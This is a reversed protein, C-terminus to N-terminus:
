GIHPPIRVLTQEAKSKKWECVQRLRLWVDDPRKRSRRRRKRESHSSTTATQKTREGLKDAGRIAQSTQKTYMKWGPTELAIPENWATSDGPPFWQAAGSRRRWGDRRPESNCDSYYHASLAATPQIHATLSSGPNRSLPSCVNSECMQERSLSYQLPLETSRLDQHLVSRQTYVCGSDQEAKVGPAQFQNKEREEPIKYKVRRFIPQDTDVTNGHSEVLVM